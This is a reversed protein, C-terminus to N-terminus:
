SACGLKLFLKGFDCLGFFLLGLREDDEVAKGLREEVDQEFVCCCSQGHVWGEEVGVALSASVLSRGM